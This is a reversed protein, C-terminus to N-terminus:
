GGIVIILTIGNQNAYEAANAIANVQGATLPTDPIVVKLTKGTIQSSKINTYGWKKGNYKILKDIDAKIVSELKGPNQYSVSNVLDRSKVSTVMGDPDVRDIVPYNSGVNNGMQADISEGRPGPGIDWTGDDLKVREIKVGRAELQKITTNASRSAYSVDDVNNLVKATDAMGETGKIVKTGRSIGRLMTKFKSIIAGVPVVVTVVEATVNGAVYALGEEEYTDCWDQGIREFFHLPGRLGAFGAAFNNIEKM